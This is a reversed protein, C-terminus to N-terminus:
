ATEKIGHLKCYLHKLFAKADADTLMDKNDTGHMAKMDARIAELDKYAKKAIAARATAGMVEGIEARTKCKAVFDEARTEQGASPGATAPAASDTADKAAEAPGPSKSEARSPNGARAKPEAKADIVYEQTKDYLALGMSRGFKMAARKLADSEAEKIALEHPNMLGKDSGYGIGEHVINFPHCNATVRVKCVYSVKDKEHGPLVGSASGPGTVQQIFMTEMHWGLNGFVQNLRDIVYWTELYDLQAGNGGARKSIVEKSISEDLMANIPPKDAQKEPTEVAKLPGSM